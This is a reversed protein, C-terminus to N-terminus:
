HHANIVIRFCEDNQDADDNVLLFAEYRGPRDLPAVYLRIYVRGQPEIAVREVKPRLLNPDSSKLWYTQAQPWPNNYSVKKHAAEGVVVDVEFEKTVVPPSATGTLLWACVLQRSEIDVLHVASQRTGPRGLPTFKLGLQNYVGPVLDFEGAPSVEVEIENSSFLRCRRSLGSRDGRVVLETSSAQGLTAHVDKALRSSVVVHWLEHVKARFRDEYLFVYFDASAPFSNLKSYKLFVEQMEGPSHRSELVVNRGPQSKGNNFEIVSVFKTEDSGGGEDVSSRSSGVDLRVTRKVIGGERQSFRLTRHVVPARPHIHLLVINLVVGHKASVLKLVRTETPGDDDSDNGRRHHTSLFSLPLHVTEHARVFLQPFRSAGCFGNDKVDDYLLMDAEVVAGLPPFMGHPPPAHRRLHAWEDVDNVVRLCGDDGLESTDVYLREESGLPNTIPHEFFLTEGFRPFLHYEVKVAAEVISRVMTKKHGERYWKILALDEELTHLPEDEGGGGGGGLLLTPQTKRLRVTRHDLPGKVRSLQAMRRRREGEEGDEQADYVGGGGGPVDLLSLGLQMLVNVLESRLISGTAEADYQRFLQEVDCGVGSREVRAQFRQAVRRLRREVASTAPDSSFVYEDASGASPADDTPANDDNRESTKEESTKEESIDEAPGEVSAEPENTLSVERSSDAADEKSKRAATMADVEDVSVLGHKVGWGMFADRKCVGAAVVVAAAGGGENNMKSVVAEADQLTVEKLAPLFDGLTHLGELLELATLEGDGDLDLEEDFCKALESGVLKAKRLVAILKAEADLARYTQGFVACFEGLSMTGDGDNDFRAMLELADEDSTEEFGQLSKLGQLLEAATVRGDGDVDFAQFADQLSVKATHIVDALRAEAYSSYKRGLLHMFGHFSLVQSGGEASGGTRVDEAATERLLDAVAKRDLTGFIGISDLGKELESVDLVGDGNADWERFLKSITVSGTQEARAVVKALQSAVSPAAHQLGWKLFAERSLWVKGKAEREKGGGAAKLTGGLLGLLESDRLLLLLALGDTNGGHDNGRGGGSDSGLASSRYQAIGARIDGASLKGNGGTDWQGFLQEHDSAEIFVRRLAGHAERDVDRGAKLLLSRVGVRGSGQPDLESAAVAEAAAVSMSRLLGHQSLGSSVSAVSVTFQVGHTDTSTSSPSPSDIQGGSLMWKEFDSELSHKRRQLVATFQGVQERTCSRYEFGMKKLLSSLQISGSGGTSVVVQKEGSCVSLVFRRLQADTLFGKSSTEADKSGLGRQFSRVVQSVRDASIFGRSSEYKAFADSVSLGLKLEAKKLLKKVKAEADGNDQRSRVWSVLHTTPVSEDVPGAAGGGHSVAAAAIIRSVLLQAERPRLKGFSGPCLSRLGEILDRTFIHGKGRRDLLSAIEELSRREELRSLDKVLRHEAAALSPVDLLQLLAGSYRVRGKSIRGSTDGFRKALLLLEEYTVANPEALKSDRAHRTSLDALGGGSQGQQQQRSSMAGSLAQDVEGNAQALPRSRKRHSPRQHQKHLTESQTSQNVGLRWNLSQRVAAPSGDHWVGSPQHVHKAGPREGSGREGYNEIVLQLYGVLKGAFRGGGLITVDQASDAFPAIVDYELAHRVSARGQRLLFSLPVWVSGVHVLSDGDWVDIQMHRSALHEFLESAEGSTVESVDVVAREELAEEFGRDHHHHRSSSNSGHEDVVLVRPVANSCSSSSSSLPQHQNSPASKPLKLLARRSRVPPRDFFRYSFSISQPLPSTKDPARYAAFRFTMVSKTRPDSMEVEVAARIHNKDGSSLGATADSSTPQRHQQEQMFRARSGRSLEHGGGGGALHSLLHRGSDEATGYMTVPANITAAMLSSPNNSTVAPGPHMGNNNNARAGSGDDPLVPASLTHSLLSTLKSTSGGIDGTHAASTRWDGFGGRPSESRSTKEFSVNNLTRRKITEHRDVLRPSSQASDLTSQSEEDSRPSLPLRRDDDQTRKPKDEKSEEKKSEKKRLKVEEQSGDSETESSDDSSSSDEIDDDDDDGGGNNGKFDDEEKSPDDPTEDVVEVPATSSSHRDDDREDAAAKEDGEKRQSGRQRRKKQKSPKMDFAECKFRVLRMPKDLSDGEGLARKGDFMGDEGPAPWVHPRHPMQAAMVHTAADVQLPLQFRNAKENCAKQLRVDSTSRLRLRRGDVWPLYVASGLVVSLAKSNDTLYQDLVPAIVATEERGGGGGAESGTQNLLEALLANAETLPPSPVRLGNQEPRVVYELFVVLACHKNRFYRGLRVKSQRQPSLETVPAQNGESEPFARDRNDGLEIAYDDGSLGEIFKRGNHLAFRLRRSLVKFGIKQPESMLLLKSAEAETSPLAESRGGKLRRYAAVKTENASLSWNFSHRLSAEMESSDQIRCVCRSLVLTLVAQDLRVRPQVVVAERLLGKKSKSKTNGDESDIKHKSSFVLTYGFAPIKKNDTADGDKSSIIRIPRLGPVAERVSVIDNEAFYHRAKLVDHHQVLRYSLVAGPVRNATTEVLQALHEAPSVGNSLLALSRPTGKLIPATAYSSRKLEVPVGELKKRHHTSSRSRSSSHEDADLVDAVGRRGFPTPELFTWGCGYTALNIGHTSDVETAVLEAVVFTRPDDIYTYWLAVENM